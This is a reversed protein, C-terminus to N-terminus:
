DKAVLERLREIPPEQGTTVYATVVLSLLLMKLARFHRAPSRDEILAALSIGDIAAAITGALDRPPVISYAPLRGLVQRVEAEVDDIFRTWLEQCRLHINPNSLGLMYLDFMLRWSEPRQACRAEAADLAAVIRELPDEIDAVARKWTETLDRDLVQVVELLLEEKSDFYYHLLGPAVGAERAIEKLSTDTYGQRSLVRTAAEIIQVRRAPAVAPAVATDADM